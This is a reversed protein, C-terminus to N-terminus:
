IARLAHIGFLAVAFDKLAKNKLNYVSRREEYRLDAAIESISMRELFWLELVKREKEDMGNLLEEIHAIEGASDECVSKWKQLEYMEQLTNVPHQASVGTIDNTVASVEGPCARFALQDIMFKAHSVSKKLSAYHRLYNEAEKVYDM